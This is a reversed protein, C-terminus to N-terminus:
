SKIPKYTVLVVNINKGWWLPNIKSVSSTVNLKMVSM